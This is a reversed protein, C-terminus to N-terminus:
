GIRKKLEQIEIKTSNQISIAIAKFRLKGLEQKPIHCMAEFKGCKIKIATQPFVGRPLQNVYRTVQSM